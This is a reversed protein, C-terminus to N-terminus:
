VPATFGSNRWRIVEKRRPGAPEILGGWLAERYLDTRTPAPRGIAVFKARIRKLYDKVTHPSINLRSAVSDIMLGSAYLMLVSRERDSFAPMQDDGIAAHAAAAESITWKEGTLAADVTKLLTAASDDKCILGRGGANILQPLSPPSSIMSVLLVLAGRNTMEAVVAPAVTRGSVDLDLLVVAPAPWNEFLGEVDSGSWVVRLDQRSDVIRELGARVLGHGEVIAITAVPTELGIVADTM